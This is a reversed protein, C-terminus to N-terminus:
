WHGPISMRVLRNEGVVYLNSGEMFAEGAADIEALPMMGSDLLISRTEAHNSILAFEENGMKLLYLDDFQITELHDFGRDLVLIQESDTILYHNTADHTAISYYVNEGEKRFAQFGIFGGLEGMDYAQTNVTEKLSGDVLSYQELRNAFVIYMNDGSVKYDRVFDEDDDDSDIFTQYLEEGTEKSYASIFPKGIPRMFYGRYAFGANLMFVTDADEWIFSQSANDKSIPQSWIADGRTNLQVIEEATALTFSHEDVLVNSVMDAILDYGTAVVYNGTLLGSAVGLLTGAVARTYDKKGTKSDYSWGSGDRPDITHIGGAVLVTTTDDVFMVNSWDFDRDITREWLEEGDSMNFGYLRNQKRLSSIRYGMGIDQDQDIHYVYYRINKEARGTELDIIKGGNQTYEILTSHHQMYSIRKYPMNYDWLINSSDPDFVIVRGKNELWKGNDTTDRFQLTFLGTSTDFYSHHIRNSFEFVDTPIEDETISEIAAPTSLETLTVPKTTSCASIVGACVLLLFWRYSKNITSM